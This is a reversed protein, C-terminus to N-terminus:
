AAKDYEKIYLDILFKTKELDEKFQGKKRCRIIRKLCDFEWSNLKNRECFEYLSGGENNYYEPTNDREYNACTAKPESFAQQIEEKTIYKTRNDITIILNDKNDIQM